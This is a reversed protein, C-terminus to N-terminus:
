PTPLDRKLWKSRLVGGLMLLGALAAPEPVETPEPTPEPFPEPTPVPMPAPAPNPTPDPTPTPSPSPVPPNDTAPESSIQKIQAYLQSSITMDEPVQFSRTFTAGGDASFGLLSLSYIAQDFAFTQAAPNDSVLLRDASGDLNTNPTLDFGFTYKFQRQAQAPQALNLQISLPVSSVHTGSFTQGNFYTLNGVAFAQESAATFSNSWFTLKNPMSRDGPRGLVFTESQPNPKETSFTAEPDVAQNVSPSNFTGSSDGLFLTAAMAPSSQLLLPAAVLAFSALYTSRFM